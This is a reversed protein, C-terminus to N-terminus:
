KKNLGPRNKGAFGGIGGGKAFWSVMLYKIKDNAILERKSVAFFTQLWDAGLHHGVTSPM